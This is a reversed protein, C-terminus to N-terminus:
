AIKILNAKKFSRWSQRETDYYCQVTDNKAKDSKGTEPVLERRLTGYAERVTGDVKLFYFKVIRDKMQGMLKMNAWACKLAESMTYGNRKVFQWALTMIEHLVNRKM